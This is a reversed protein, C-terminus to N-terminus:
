KTVRASKNKRWRRIPHVTDPLEQIFALAAGVAIGFAIGSRFDWTSERAVANPDITSLSPALPGSSQWTYGNQQIIGAPTVSDIQVRRLDERLRHIDETTTIKPSYFAMSAVGKLTSSLDVEVGGGKFGPPPLLPYSSTTFGILRGTHPDKVSALMSDSSNSSREGIEPMQLFIRDKTYFVTNPLYYTQHLVELCSYTSGFVSIPCSNGINTKRKTKTYSFQSVYSPHAASQGTFDQNGVLMLKAQHKDDPITSLLVVTASRVTSPASVTLTLNAPTGLEGVPTATVQLDAAITISPDSAYVDFFVSPPPPIFNIDGSSSYARYKSGLIVAVLFVISFIAVRIYKLNKPGDAQNKSDDTKGREDGSRRQDTSVHRAPWGLNGSRGDSSM